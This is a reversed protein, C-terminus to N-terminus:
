SIVCDSKAEQPPPKMKDEFAKAAAQMANVIRPGEKALMATMRELVDKHSEAMKKLVEDFQEKTVKQQAHVEKFMETAEKESKDVMQLIKSDKMWQVLNAVTNEGIQKLREYAEDIDKKSSM